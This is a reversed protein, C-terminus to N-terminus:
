EGALVPSPLWGAVTAGAGISRGQGWCQVGTGTQPVACTHNAGASVSQIANLGLVQVPLSTAYSVTGSGLQGYENRGWCQVVGNGVRACTHHEGAEIATVGSLNLVAVPTSSDATDGNGLQGFYNHGWCRVTGGSLLACTHSGGAAIATVYTLEPM